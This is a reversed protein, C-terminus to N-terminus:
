MRVRKYVELTERACREWSFTKARAIGSIRLSERLDEDGLVREITLALEEKNIPDILVAADGVVEPISSVNSTIVPTGCAMAEVVPLGFGEYLSPYVFVSAMSYIASLHEQAVYGTFCVNESIKLETILLKIQDNLWGESGVIVLSFKNKFTQQLLAYAALLTPLNKRPELSGVFLVFDHPLSYKQRIKKLIDHDVIRTFAKDAALHTVTIKDEPADFYKILDLKTHNSIAIIADAREIADKTGQLCHDINAQM